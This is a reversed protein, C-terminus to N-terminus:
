EIGHKELLRYLRPRSIGLLEAARSRNGGSVLLARELQAQEASELSLEGAPADVRGGADMPDPRRGVIGDLGLHEPRIVSGTALVVARNVCKELERVNGPWDHTMLVALTEEPLTMEEARARGAVARRIFHDALLPVDSLRERLPPIRLEVGCLRYYLDERFEGRSVRASLDHHTAAIVRAETREPKEGGLPLFEREELVRLLKAQFAPSTDGIEDLLLTGRGALAFRGRRDSVAGTFAGRVHGFLESELLTDPLATCNVAIFPEAATASHHHIARAVREKGTGTEGLLLVNVRSASLQGVRKYVDIMLPHRGILTDLGCGSEEAGSPARARSGGARALRDSGVRALVELLRDARLPKVLFDFAGDRMARAVTPMDEYATMLLVDVDPARARLLELLELGDMDPMRIDSLVIDPRSRALAALASEAGSATEVGFGEEELTEAITERVADDDDVVLVRLPM